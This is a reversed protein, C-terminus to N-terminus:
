VLMFLPTQIGPAGMATPHLLTLSQLRLAGICFHSTPVPYVGQFHTGLGLCTWQTEELLGAGNRGHNTAINSNHEDGVLPLAAHWSAHGNSMAGGNDVSRVQEPNM